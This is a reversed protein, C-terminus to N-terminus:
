GKPVASAKDIINPLLCCALRFLQLVEWCFRLGCVRLQRCWLGAAEGARLLSRARLALRLLTAALFSDYPADAARHPNCLKESKGNPRARVIARPGARSQAPVGCSDTHSWTGHQVVVGGGGGAVAACTAACRGRVDIVLPAIMLGVTIGLCIKITLSTGNGASTLAPTTPPTGPPTGPPCIPPTRPPIRPPSGLATRGGAGLGNRGIRM